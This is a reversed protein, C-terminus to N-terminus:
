IEAAVCTHCFVVDQAEDYNLFPWMTFWQAQASCMVPKSKGFSRKPFNYGRQPHNPKEPLSPVNSKM